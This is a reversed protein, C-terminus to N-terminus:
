PAILALTPFYTRYRTADRTLLTMARVAAHAGFYFDPLPARRAGGQRRYTLFCKGALFGAERPLPERRFLTDPLEEELEEIREFRVSVEAYIIPNIVLVDREAAHALAEQSWALWRADETLVDLIVNSDVLVIGM